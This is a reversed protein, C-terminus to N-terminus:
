TQNQKNEETPASNVSITGKQFNRGFYLASTAIFLEFSNAFDISFKTEALKTALSALCVAYTALMMTFTVSAEQTTPNRLLPVPIGKVSAWTVLEKWQDLMKQM